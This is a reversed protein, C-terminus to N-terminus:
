SSTRPTPPPTTCCASPLPAFRADLRIPHTLPPTRSPRRSSPSGLPSRLCTKTTVHAACACALASFARHLHARNHDIRLYVCTRRTAGRTRGRTRSTRREDIGREGCSSEDKAAAASTGAPHARARTDFMSRTRPEVRVGRHRRPAERAGGGGQGRHSGNTRLTTLRASTPRDRPSAARKPRRPRRWRGSTRTCKRATREMQPMSEARHRARRRQRPRPWRRRRRRRRRNRARGEVKALGRWYGQHRRIHAGSSASHGGDPAGPLFRLTGRGKATTSKEGIKKFINALRIRDASAPTPSASRM